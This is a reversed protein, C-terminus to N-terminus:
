LGRDMKLIKIVYSFIADFVGKKWIKGLWIGAMFICLATMFKDYSGKIMDNGTTGLTLISSGVRPNETM